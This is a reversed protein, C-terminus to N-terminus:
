YWRQQVHSNSTCVQGTFFNFLHRRQNPATLVENLRINSRQHSPCCLAVIMLIWFISWVPFRQMIVCDMIDLAPHLWHCPGRCKSICSRSVSFCGNKWDWQSPSSCYFLWLGPFLWGFCACIGGRNWLTSLIWIYWLISFLQFCNCIILCQFLWFMSIWTDIKFGCGLSFCFFYHACFESKLFVVVELSNCWGGFSFRPWLDVPGQGSIREYGCSLMRSRRSFGVFSPQVIETLWCIKYCHLLADGAAKCLTEPVFIFGVFIDMVKFCGRKGLFLKGSKPFTSQKGLQCPFHTQTTIGM